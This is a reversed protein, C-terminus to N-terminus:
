PKYSGECRPRIGLQPVDGVGVYWSTLLVESDHTRHIRIYETARSPGIRFGLVDQDKTAGQWDSKNRGAISSQLGCVRFMTFALGLARLGSGSFRCGM